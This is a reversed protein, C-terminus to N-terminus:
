QGDTYCSQHPIQEFRKGLKKKKPTTQESRKGM